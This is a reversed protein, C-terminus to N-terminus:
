ESLLGKSGEHSSADPATVVIRRHAEGGAAVTGGGAQASTM